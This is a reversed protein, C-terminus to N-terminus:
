QITHLHEAVTAKHRVTNWQCEANSNQLQLEIKKQSANIADADCNRSRETGKDGKIRRKRTLSIKNYATKTV